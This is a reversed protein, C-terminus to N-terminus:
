PRRYRRLDPLAQLSQRHASQGGRKGIEFVLVRIWWPRRGKRLFRVLPELVYKRYTPEIGFGIALGAYPWLNM